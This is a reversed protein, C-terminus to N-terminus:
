AKYIWFKHFIFNAIFTLLVAGIQAIFYPTFLLLSAFCITNISVGAIVVMIFKPLTDKHSKNSEFTFRYNLLYNYVASLLYSFASSLTKPLALIEIMIALLTFQLLTTSGGVALFIILERTMIRNDLYVIVGCYLSPM